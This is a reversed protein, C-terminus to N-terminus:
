GAEGQRVAGQRVAACATAAWDEEVLTCSRPTSGRRRGDTSGAEYLAWVKGRRVLGWRVAGFWVWGSGVVAFCDVVWDRAVLLARVLLRVGDVVMRAGDRVPGMGSRAWGLRVLGSWVAGCGLVGFRGLVRDCGVLLARAFLRVEGVVM